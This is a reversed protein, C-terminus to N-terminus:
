CATALHELYEPDVQFTGPPSTVRLPVPKVFAPVQLLHLIATIEKAETVFGKIKMKGSCKPCVLPDVEFVRKILAAWSKSAKRKPLPELILIEPSEAAAQLKRRKGRSRHSYYGYYRATQEWKNPIHPTLRALFELADFEHTVPDKETRYTVIDDDISIKSNAVPGRDIYRALFLRYGEDDPSIEEGVWVSFGTHVQSMIQQAQEPSLLGKDRLATLVKHALLETLREQDWKVPVFGRDTFVGAAMIGHVHPNFNLSDGATQMVLVAGTDGEPVLAKALESISDWAAQLLLGNLKRSYKFYIRLRKPLSFVVHQQPVKPLIEEHLTDSFILARKAACSPCVGRRKCSFAVVMSHECSECDAQAFGHALIGCNLYSDLTETVCDRLVGYDSQFREEWYLELNDREQYIIRYLNTTEPCRRKYPQTETKLKEWIRQQM